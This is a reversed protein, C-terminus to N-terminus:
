AVPGHSRVAGEAEIPRLPDKLYHAVSSVTDNITPRRTVISFSRRITGQAKSHNRQGPERRIGCPDVLASGLLPLLMSSVGLRQRRGKLYHLIGNTMM